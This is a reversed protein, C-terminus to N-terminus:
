LTTLHHPHLRTKPVIGVNAWLSQPIAYSIRNPYEPTKASILTSCGGFWLLLASLQGARYSHRFICWRWYRIEYKLTGLIAPNTCEERNEDTVGILNLCIEKVCTRGMKDYMVVKDVGCYTNCTAELSLAEPKVYKRDYTRACFTGSFTTCSGHQQSIQKQKDSCWSRFLYGM